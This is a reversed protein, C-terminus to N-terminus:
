GWVKTGESCNRCMEIGSRSQLIEARFDNYIKSKWIARFPKEGIKGMEYQADKDFCCPLVKGDWTIEAGMWMKWCQNELSNKLAFKGNSLKRYRSYKPNVPFLPSGNEYDYIQATKVLVKDVGLEKGLNHVAEVEHENHNVVLFQLILYPHKTKAAKRADVLNKIGSKVKELEGGVRYKQYSDQTVGDVSILVEQIGSDIVKKATKVDLFHGNTSTATYIKQSAAYAAMDLFEPNLFPEGQFYMLLYVLNSHVEDVYSKFANMSLMGTPRSFARLGSICEPCRLNCHTTPEFGLKAPMGWIRPKGSYKSYYFSTFLKTLNWVKRISLTSVLLSAKRFTSM